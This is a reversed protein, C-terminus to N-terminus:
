QGFATKDLFCKPAGHTDYKELSVSLLGRAYAWFHGHTQTSLVKPKWHHARCVHVEDEAIM